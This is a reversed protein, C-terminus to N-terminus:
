RPNRGLLAPDLNRVNQWCKESCYDEEHDHIWGPPPITLPNEKAEQCWDCKIIITM